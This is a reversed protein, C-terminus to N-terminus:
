SLPHEEFFQWIVLRTPQAGISSILTHGGGDERYHLVVSGRQCGSWREGTIDPQQLFVIPGTTCRDRAAWGALWEAISPLPWDPAERAPLGLYPVIGDATGHFDMIPVPRSPHCGGPVAYFNGSVPAFAAIRDAMRCALYGVMGGGNSFGTAYIRREDVCLRRELDDLMNGVYTIEDIGEDRPGASAWFTSGDTFLLGQPYVALFHQEESLQSYGSSADEDSATGGTGHFQLVVPMPQNNVYAAPVHLRYVRTHQGNSIAPDAPITMDTSAGPEVPAPQGCGPSPRSAVQATAAAGRATQDAMLGCVFIAICLVLALRRLWPNSGRMDRRPM